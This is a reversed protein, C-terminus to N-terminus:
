YVFSYFLALMIESINSANSSKLFVNYVKSNSFIFKFLAIMLPIASNKAEEFLGAILTTAMFVIHEVWAIM